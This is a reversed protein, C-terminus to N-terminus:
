KRKEDAGEVTIAPPDYSPARLNITITNNSSNIARKEFTYEYVSSDNSRLSLYLRFSYSHPVEFELTQGASHTDISFNKGVGTLRIQDLQKGGFPYGWFYDPNEINVKVAVKVMESSPAALVASSFLLLCLASFLCIIIKKM